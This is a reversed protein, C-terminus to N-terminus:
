FPASTNRQKIASRPGDPSDENIEPEKAMTKSSYFPIRM